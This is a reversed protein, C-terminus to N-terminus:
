LRIGGGGIKGFLYDSFRQKLLIKKTVSMPFVQNNWMVFADKRVGTVYDMNILVGRNCVLFRPDEEAKTQVDSFRIRYSATKFNRTTVDVYHANSVIYAVESFLVSVHYKDISFTFYRTCSPIAAAADQLLLFVDNSRYPKVLYGFPHIEFSEFVHTKSTTQFIIVSRDNWARLQRAVEIGSIGEMYIDLFIVDYLHNQYKRLFLEGNPFCEVSGPQNRCKFFRMCYAKLDNGEMLDDEVIAVRM